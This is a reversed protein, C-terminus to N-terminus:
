SSPNTRRAALQELANSIFTKWELYSTEEPLYGDDIALIHLRAKTQIDAKVPMPDPVNSAVALKLKKSISRAASSGFIDVSKNTEMDLQRKTTAKAVLTTTNVHLSKDRNYEAPLTPRSMTVDDPLGHKYNNRALCLLRYIKSHILDRSALTCRRDVLSTDLVLVVVRGKPEERAFHKIIRDFFLIKHERCSKVVNVANWYKDAFANINKEFALNGTYTDYIWSENAEGDCIVDVAQLTLETQSSSPKTSAGGVTVL